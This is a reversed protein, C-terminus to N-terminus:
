RGGESAPRRRLAPLLDRFVFTRATGPLALLVGVYAAGALLGAILAPADVVWGVLGMAAAAAAVVPLYTMRPLLGERRVALVMPVSVAAESIVSTAAAAKYGYAPILVLNLSVNFVLVCSSSALLIRDRENAMLVRWFVGNSFSFLVYPALIQLAVASGAFEPGASILVIDEAFVFLGVAIAAATAIVLDFSKQVLATAREDGTAVFRTLAPFMSLAFAAVFFESLELFKYAAGYLGVEVSDRLLALLIADFRFYIQGLAIALGLVISAAALDRWYPVDVAPRLSVLRAVVALHVLFTVGIGIVQATVVGALGLDAALAAFTLALATLRGALNGAVAWQMKLQAQLVPLLSLSLLTLFAGVSSIAIAVKTEHDFPLLLGIATAGAVFMIGVATRLPLSARMASETREPRGSIERLIAASLGAEALVTPIFLYATAATIHGYVEPGLGRTVAVFTFFAIVSGLFSGVALVFTNAALRVALGSSDRAALDSM